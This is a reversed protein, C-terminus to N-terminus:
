KSAQQFIVAKVQHNVGGHLTDLNQNELFNKKQLFFFDQAKSDPICSVIQIPFEIEVPLSQFYTGTM